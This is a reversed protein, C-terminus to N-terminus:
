SEEAAMRLDQDRLRDFVLLPTGDAKGAGDHLVNEIIGARTAPEVKMRELWRVVDSKRFPEFRPLLLLKNYDPSQNDFDPGCLYPPGPAAAGSYDGIVVILRNEPIGKQRANLEALFPQWFGAHFAAIGDPVREIFLLLPQERLEEAVAGALDGPSTIRSVDLGLARTISAMMLALDPMAPDPRSWRPEGDFLGSSALYVLFARRGAQEEASVLFAAAPSPSAKLESLVLEVASTQSDRGLRGLQEDSLSSGCGAGSKGAKRAEELATAKQWDLCCVVALERADQTDQFYRVRKWSDKVQRHFTKLLAPHKKQFDSPSDNLLEKALKTLARDAPSGPEAELVALPRPDATGWRQWAWEFEMHTISKEPANKVPPMSGYWRGLLLIFGDAQNVMDRCKRVTNDYGGKWDESLFCATEARRMLVDQIQRRYTRFDRATSSVFVQWTLPAATVKKAM